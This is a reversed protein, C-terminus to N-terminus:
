ELCVNLQYIQTNANIKLFRPPSKPIHKLQKKIIVYITIPFYIYLQQINMLIHLNLLYISHVKFYKKSFM